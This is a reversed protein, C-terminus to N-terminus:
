DIGGGELAEGGPRGDLLEETREAGDIRAGEGDRRVVGREEDGGSASRATAPDGGRWALGRRVRLLDWNALLDDKHFVRAPSVHLVSPGRWARPAPDGRTM